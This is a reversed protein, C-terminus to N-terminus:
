CGQMWDPIVEWQPAPWRARLHVPDLQTRPSCGPIAVAWRYFQARVNAPHLAGGYACTGDALGAPLPGEVVLAHCLGACAVIPSIETGQDVGANRVVTQVSPRM